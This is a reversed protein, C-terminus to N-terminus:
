EIITTFGEKERILRIDNLARKLHKEIEKKAGKVDHKKICDIMNAHEQISLIMNSDLARASYRIRQQSDTNRYMYDILFDNNTIKVIELHFLQDIEYYKGYASDGNLKKMDNLLSDLKKIQEKTANKAAYEICAGEIIGRAQYSNEVTKWSLPAVKFKHGGADEVLGEGKLRILAERVPTRSVKYDTAIQQAMLLQGPVMKSTVIQEKLKHYITTVISDKNEKTM